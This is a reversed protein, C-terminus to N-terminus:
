AAAHTGGRQRWLAILDHEIGTRLVEFNYELGSYGDYQDGLLDMAIDVPMDGNFVATNITRILGDRTRLEEASRLVEADRWANLGDVARKQRAVERYKDLLTNETTHDLFLASWGLGM